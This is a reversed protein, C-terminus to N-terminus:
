STKARDLFEMLKDAADKRWESLREPLGTRRSTMSGTEDWDSIFCYSRLEHHLLTYARTIDFSRDKKNHKVESILGRILSVQFATKEKQKKLEITRNCLALLAEGIVSSQRDPSNQWKRSAVIAGFLASIARKTEGTTRLIAALADLLRGESGGASVNLAEALYLWNNSTLDAEGSSIKSLFNVFYLPLSGEFKVLAGWLDRIFKKGTKPRETFGALFAVVEGSLVAPLDAIDFEHDMIKDHIAEAVLFEQFSRHPFFLRYGLKSDLISASILGRKVDDLNEDTRCFPVVLSDPIAPESIASERKERWLWFALEKAFQRRQTNTFRDRRAFKRGEREIVDSIFIDYLEHVTLKELRERSVDPLIESLMKLQVPRRVIDRLGTENLLGMVNAHSVGILESKRAPDSEIKILYALYRSIFLEMQSQSFSSLEIEVFDPWEHDKTQINRLKNWKLGHLAYEQEEDTLFATPRGLILVKSRPQALILRNLQSLNYRFQSWSITQKMEDFGDFIIIFRGLRNLETFLAFNYNRVINTATFLKGLLGELGQENAIEGLPVLVPIRAESNKLAENALSSALNRAFSSKGLGYSGLIAVPVAETTNLHQWRDVIESLNYYVQATTQGKERYDGGDELPKPLVDIFRDIDTETRDAHDSQPEGSIRLVARPPVYYQDLGYDSFQSAVSNLYQTFDLVNAQLESYTQLQLNTSEKIKAKAADAIPGKTVILIEDIHRGEILTHYDVYIETVDDRTLVRGYHKCEVATIRHKGFRLESILVDVKKSGVLIDQEVEYGCLKLHAAVDNQFQKWAPIVDGEASTTASMAIRMSLSKGALRITLLDDRRSPTADKTHRSM